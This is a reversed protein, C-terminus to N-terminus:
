EKRYFSYDELRQSVIEYIQKPTISDVNLKIDWDLNDKLSRAVLESCIYGKEGDLLKPLKIGLYNLFLCLITKKSYPKGMRDIAYQILETKTEETIPISFKEIVENQEEFVTSSMFNVMGRSAQYIMWRHYKYSYFAIYTHSYPTKEFFRILSSMIAYKKKPKSFGIIIKTEM